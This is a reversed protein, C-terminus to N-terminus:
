GKALPRKAEALAAEVAEFTDTVSAAPAKGMLSVLVIALFSFVFGPVIEYIVSSLKGGDALVPAYIWVLVTAAGVVIGALAGNRTMRKWTLSLIVLPGFAAGFGAWANAVLGLVSNEPNWALYIAALSVGLVALRGVMVLEKQPANKRLFVAYFDETLSSSSVLLQSSITSMIAALIAALLFGTILPHFLVDSLLIFITEPDTVELGTRTAYALGALGTGLAGILTVLMWSMGINRTMPMDRVSRVAMFRVIIHPQGFYGLGWAMASLISVATAGKFLDLLGPDIGRVTEAVEGIGGFQMLAVVPVLVLAVFMICGQVFDTLSVALFGGVMTYALVVGATVWLGWTYDLGFSTEFLKGGAVLGSSTYLTFFVVIVLSSIVRLLRSRDEFRKDFYDPITIADRALETYVRLRPAVILYNAMAGIFLGIAIWAASLGAVYMAGPLGLLMWGSMDSAGASLAAVAPGLQRGGLMYGAVDSTSKRWAYVGIGLMLAFYLGLAVFTGTEM